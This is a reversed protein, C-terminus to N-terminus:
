LPKWSDILYYLKVTDRVSNDDFKFRWKYKKDNSIISVNDRDSDHMGGWMTPIATWKVALKISRKVSIANTVECCDSCANQAFQTAAQMSIPPSTLSQKSTKGQWPEASIGSWITTCPRGWYQPSPVLWCMWTWTFADNSSDKIAFYGVRRPASLDKRNVTCSLM